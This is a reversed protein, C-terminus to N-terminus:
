KYERGSKIHRVSIRGIIEFGHSALYQKLMKVVRAAKRNVEGKEINKLAAYATPDAAGSANRGERM